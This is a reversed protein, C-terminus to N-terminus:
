IWGVRNSGNSKWKWGEYKDNMANVSQRPNRSPIEEDYSIPFLTKSAFVVQGHTNNDNLMNLTYM